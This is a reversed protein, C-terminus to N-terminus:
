VRGTRGTTISRLSRGLGRASVTVLRLPKAARIRWSGPALPPKGTKARWKNLTDDSWQLAVLRDLDRWKVWLPTGSVVFRRASAARAVVEWTPLDAACGARAVVTDAALARVAIDWIHAVGLEAAVGRAVPVLGDAELGDHGRRWEDFTRGVTSFRNVAAHIALHVVHTPVDLVPVPAGAVRMTTTHATFVAFARRPTITVYPLTLHLDVDPVDPENSVFTDSHGHRDVRTFGRAALVRAARGFGSPDVLLDVDAVPRREDPGYLRHRTVPGKLLVVGVGARQLATVYGPIAAEIRDTAAHSVVTALRELAEDQSRAASTADGTAPESEASPVEAGDHASADASADRPM